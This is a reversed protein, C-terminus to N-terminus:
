PYVPPGGAIINDLHYTRITALGQLKVGLFCDHRGSSLLRLGDPQSEVTIIKRAIKKNQIFDHLIDGKQVIVEKGTLGEISDIKPDSRRIFISHHIILHPISFDVMRDREESYYMGILVDIKGEELESRVKNWPGLSLDAQIGMVNAVANFIDVNYGDPVGQQNIFEYPPYNNDGRVQLRHSETKERAQPVSYLFLMMLVALVIINRKRDPLGTRSNSIMEM